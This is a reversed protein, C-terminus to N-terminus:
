HACGSFLFCTADTLDVCVDCCFQIFSARRNSLSCLGVFPRVEVSFSLAGPSNDVHAVGSVYCGSGVFEKIAATVDLPSVITERFKKQEKLETATAHHMLLGLMSEGETEQGWQQKRLSAKLLNSVSNIERRLDDVERRVNSTEAALTKEQTEDDTENHQLLNVDRQLKAVEKLAATLDAHLVNDKQSAQQIKSNVGALQQQLKESSQNATNPTDGLQAHLQKAEERLSELEQETQAEVTLMQAHRRKLARIRDLLRQQEEQRAETSKRLQEAKELLQQQTVLEEATDITHGDLGSTVSLCVEECSFGGGDTGHECSVLNGKTHGVCECYGSNGDPIISSCKHDRWPERPGLPNCQSTQRWGLCNANPSALHDQVITDVVYSMNQAPLHSIGSAVLNGSHYTYLFPVSIVSHWTCLTKFSPDECDVELIARAVSNHHNLTTTAAGTTTAPPSNDEDSSGGGNVVKRFETVFQGCPECSTATFILTTFVDRNICPFLADANKLRGSDCEWSADPEVNTEGDLFSASIDLGHKENVFSKKTIHVDKAGLEDATEVSPAVNAVRELFEKASVNSAKSLSTSGYVTTYDVAIASCPISSFNVGFFLGVTSPQDKAVRYYSRLEPTFYDVTQALCLYLLVLLTGLSFYAGTQSEQVVDADFAVENIKRYVDLRRFQTLFSIFKSSM